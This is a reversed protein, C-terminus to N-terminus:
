ITKSESLHLKLNLRAIMSKLPEFFHERLLLFYKKENWDDDGAATEVQGCEKCQSVKNSPLRGNIVVGCLVGAALTLYMEILVSSSGDLAKQCLYVRKFM